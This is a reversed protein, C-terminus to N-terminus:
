GLKSREMLIQERRQLWWGYQVPWDSFEAGEADVGLQRRAHLAWSPNILAERGIGILDSKNGSVIQEAQHADTISGVAMTAVDAGVKVKETASVNPALGSNGSNSNASSHGGIGGSSCDIVDVGLKKLEKALQVSECFPRGGDAGDELSIRVFLPRDAPLEERVESAVECMLRHREEFGGNYQDSRRNTIPSMFSHLLFGHAGHLEVVDFGAKVARRTASRFAEKVAAIGEQDLEDPIQHCDSMPIASPAVIPWPLESTNLANMETVGSYGNWPRQRCAKRGGHVLQIGVAVGQGKLFNVIRALPEIQCDSWLGLDGHSVRGEPLVSTAELIVLGAGGLAFRGYHALHFDSAIGDVASYMCMPSIVIRNKFTVGRITLESFLKSATSPQM